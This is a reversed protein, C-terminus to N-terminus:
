SLNAWQLVGGQFSSIRGGRLSGFRSNASKRKNFLKGQGAGSSAPNRCAIRELDHAYASILEALINQPQRHPLTM